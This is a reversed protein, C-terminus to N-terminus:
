RALDAGCVEDAVDLRGNNILEEVWRRVVDKSTHSM